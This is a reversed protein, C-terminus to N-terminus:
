HSYLLCLKVLKPRLVFIQVNSVRIDGKRLMQPLIQICFCFWRHRSGKWPLLPGMKSLKPSIVVVRAFSSSGVVTFWRMQGNAPWCYNWVWHLIINYSLPDVHIYAAACHLSFFQLFWLLTINGGLVDGLHWHAASYYWRKTIKATKSTHNATLKHIFQLKKVKTNVIKNRKQLQQEKVTKWGEVM